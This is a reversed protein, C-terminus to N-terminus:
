CLKWMRVSDIRFSLDDDNSPWTASWTSQKSAFDRMASASADFWPKDGVKDPFWGSTGGVALDLILYFPQDFPASNTANQVTSTTWPNPVVIETATNNHATVPFNGQKFFYGGNSQAKNNVKLYLMAKLRSDVYAKIFDETWELTYTHFSSAYNSRKLSQWGFVRAIVSPLPGWALSSRVFNFGQAAYSATNGRAEMIDIEGSLPWPGYVSGVPLMWIAPWLWDGRPLKAVVEVKGYRISYSGQTTIRASMVPPITAGTKANSSASCASANTKTTTCGKLTYNGGDFIQNANSLVSSTLTPKIYLQGNRVFLNDPLATTMEFEGNGFGSMEVDRAWTGGNDVDLTDFDDEMVSCLRSPDIMTNGASVYGRWCILGAVGAGILLMLLTVWRSARTRADPREILWPKDENNLKESLLTSPLPAKPPLESAPYSPIAPSPPLATFSQTVHAPPSWVSSPRSAPSLFAARFSTTSPSNSLAHNSGPASSGSNRYM